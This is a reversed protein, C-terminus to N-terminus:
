CVQPLARDPDNSIEWLVERGAAIPRILVLNMVAYPALDLCQMTRLAGEVIAAFGERLEYRRLWFCIPGM